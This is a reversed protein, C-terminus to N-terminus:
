RGTTSAVDRAAPADLEPRFGHITARALRWGTVGHADLTALLVGTSTTQPRGSPFVFNGLSWAVLKRGQRTVPQLM